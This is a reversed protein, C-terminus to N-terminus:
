SPSRTRWAATGSRQIAGDRKGGHLAPSQPDMHIIGLAILNLFVVATAIFIGFTVRANERIGLINLGAVAWIDRHGARARRRASRCSITGNIV